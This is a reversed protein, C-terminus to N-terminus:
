EKTEIQENENKTEIQENENQMENESNVKPKSVVGFAVLIGAIGLIINSIIEGDPIFGVAKGIAQVIAVITGSLGVWFSYSKIREKM